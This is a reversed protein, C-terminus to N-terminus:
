ELRMTSSATLPFVGSSLTPAGAWAMIGPMVLFAFNYRVNVTVASGSPGVANTTTVCLAGEQSSGCSGTQVSKVSLGSVADQVKTTILSAPKGVAAARAGERAGNTIILWSHYGRGFDITGFVLLLLVPLLFALEVTQLGSEGKLLRTFTNHLLCM